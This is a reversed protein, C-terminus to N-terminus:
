PFAYENKNNERDLFKKFIDKVTRKRPLSLLQAVPDAVVRAPSPAPLCAGSQQRGREHPGGAPLSAAPRLHRGQATTGAPSRSLVLSSCFRQWRSAVRLARRPISARRAVRNRRHRLSETAFQARVGCPGALVWLPPAIGRGVCRQNGGRSAEEQRCACRPRPRGATLPPRVGACRRRPPV